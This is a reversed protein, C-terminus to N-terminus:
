NAQASIREASVELRCFYLASRHQQPHQSNDMAPPHVPDHFRFYHRLDLGYGLDPQKAILVFPLVTLIAPKILDRLRYGGAVDTKAYCAALVLILALKAPESPQLNFFGLDIWRQAGAIAKVFLLTYILLLLVLGYLVYGLKVVREYELTMILLILVLGAAFFILQKYFLSAAGTDAIYTSSYLNILAMGGVLLLMLLMVWDFHQLLRRDFHFM